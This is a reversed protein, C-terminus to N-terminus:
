IPNRAAWCASAAVPALQLRPESATSALRMKFSAGSSFRLANPLSVM